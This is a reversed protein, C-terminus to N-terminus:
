KADAPLTVRICTGSPHSQNEQAHDLIEIRGGHQTAIEKVIALGLGSGEVDSGLIRYFRELVRTREEVPIGPGTDKVEIEIFGPRSARKVEVTVHGGIPTYKIANDILNNFLERMMVANGMIHVAYEHTHCGLDIQKSWAANLWNKTAEQAAINLDIKARDSLNTTNEMRALSLLQQVLRAARNSSDAIQELSRKLEEPNSERQALEAQMQLGALPTKLQHAADAIFRKQANVSDELQFLVGNFSSILPMIEQPAAKEEIPSTDEVHRNRIHNQLAHLPALGRTLGFWVLVVVIPLIIFQPLIVGKIIENALQSRKDLTEAVQVLITNADLNPNQPLLTSAIRIKEGNIKADRYTVVGIQTVDDLGPIPLDKDGAILYGRQDLVQFYIRDNEDAQLIQKASHPLSLSVNEGQIRVQQAIAQVNNELGRDFPANAISQAVLYTVAISMPWLLLLPALMWDLIEGFLSRPGREQPKGAQLESPLLKQLESDIVAAVSM